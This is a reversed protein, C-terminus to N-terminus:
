KLAEKGALSLSMGFNIQEIEILHTDINLKSNEESLTKLCQGEQM